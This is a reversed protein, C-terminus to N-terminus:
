GNGYGASSTMAPKEATPPPTQEQRCAPVSVTQFSQTHGQGSQSRRRRAQRELELGGRTTQIGHGFRQKSGAADSRHLALAEIFLLQRVAVRKDINRLCATYSCAVCTLRPM